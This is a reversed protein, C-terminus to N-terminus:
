RHSHQGFRVARRGATPTRSLASRSTSAPSASSQGDGASAQRRRVTRREILPPKGASSLEIPAVRSAAKSTAKRPTSAVQPTSSRQLRPIKSRHEKRTSLATFARASGSAPNKAQDLSSDIHHQLWTIGRNLDRAEKITLADVGQVVDETSLNLLRERLTQLPTMQHKSQLDRMQHEGQLDEVDHKLQDNEVVLENYDEVSIQIQRQQEEERQQQACQSDEIHQKLQENEKGLECLKRATTKGTQNVAIKLCRELRRLHDASIAVETRLQLLQDSSVTEGLNVAKALETLAILLNDSREIPSSKAHLGMQSPSSADGPGPDMTKDGLIRAGKDDLHEDEGEGYESEEELADGLKV